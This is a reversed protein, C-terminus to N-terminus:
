QDDGKKKLSQLHDAYLRDAQRIMKTYFRGEGTKDGGVLM